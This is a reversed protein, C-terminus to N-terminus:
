LSKNCRRYPFASGAAYERLMKNKMNSSINKAKSVVKVSKIMCHHQEEFFVCTANLAKDMINLYFILWQNMNCVQRTKALRDDCEKINAQIFKVFPISVKPSMQLKQMYIKM